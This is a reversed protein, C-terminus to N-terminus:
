FPSVFIESGLGYSFKLNYLSLHCSKKVSTTENTGSQLIIYEWLQTSYCCANIFCGIYM